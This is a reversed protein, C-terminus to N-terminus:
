NEGLKINQDPRLSAGPRIVVEDSDLEINGTWLGAIYTTNFVKITTGSSDLSSGPRFDLISDVETSQETINRESDVVCSGGVGRYDCIGFSEEVGMEVSPQDAVKKRVFVHDTYKHYDNSDHDQGGLAPYLNSDPIADSSSRSDFQGGERYFRVDSGSIYDIRYNKWDGFSESVSPGGERVSDQSDPSIDDDREYISVLDGSCAWGTYCRNADNLVIAGYHKSGTGDPDKVRTHISHGFGFNKSVAQVGNQITGEDGDSGPYVNQIDLYGNEEEVYSDGGIVNWRSTNLSNDEFDDFFPFTEFGNSSPSASPNSYYMYVRNEISASLEGVEVWVETSGTDCGSQIWYDLQTVGDVSTFRLDSCDQQMKDQSLLESTDVSLKIQYDQLVQGSREEVDVPRRKDWGDLWQDSELSGKSVSPPNEVKKRVKVDEFYLESASSTASGIDNELHLPLEKEPINQTIEGYVLDGDRYVEFKERFRVLDYDYWGDWNGFVGTGYSGSSNFSLIQWGFNQFYREHDLLLGAGSDEFGFRAGHGEGSNKFYIRSDLSTRYSFNRRSKVINKPGNGTVSMELRGNREDISGEEAKIKWKSSNLVGDEFGDYLLFVDEPDSRGSAEPNGYYVYLRETVGADVDTRFWVETSGTNCGSAVWYGRKESDGAVRLDSCDSQMLGNSVLDATDLSVKVSYNELREGSNESVNVPTRYEWADDWWSFGAPVIVM